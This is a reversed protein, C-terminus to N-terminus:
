SPQWTVVPPTLELRTIVHEGFPQISLRAGDRPMMSQILMLGGSDGNAAQASLTGENSITISASGHTMGVTLSIGVHGNEAGGHKIANVILESLVMSIPLAEHTAIKFSLGPAVDVTIPTKWVSSANDALSQLLNELRVTESLGTSARGQLGHLVAIGKVLTIAHSMVSETQPYTRAFQRLVGTIGQLGNKIRHHVERILADRQTIQRSQHEAEKQKLETLDTHTVVFHTIVGQESTVATATLWQPFIEGDKRRHWVEDAWTGRERVTRWANEYFSAPHRDSRMFSTTQGLVEQATYGTIRTFSRNTRQIRLDPDVVIIGEQCEFAIAAIRLDAENRRREGFYIALSMGTLSMVMFYLWSDLLQVYLSHSAFYTANGHLGLMGQVTAMGVLLTVIHPGHRMAAWILLPYILYGKRPFGIDWGSPWGLFAYQGIIFALALILGSELGLRPTLVLPECPRLWALVLTMLIVVGLVDGAWWRLLTTPFDALPAMRLAVLGTAGVLASAGCALLAGQVLLRRYDRISRLCPDLSPKRGLLAHGALPAAAAALGSALSFFFPDNSSVSFAFQGAFVAVAHVPGYLTVMALALGCAPWFAGVVGEPAFYRRSLYALAWYGLATVTLTLASRYLRARDM